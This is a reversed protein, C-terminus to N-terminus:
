PATRLKVAPPASRRAAKLDHVGVPYSASLGSGGASTGGPSRAAAFSPAAALPSALPQPLVFSQPFGGYSFLYGQEDGGGPDPNANYTLLVDGTYPTERKILAEGGGIGAYRIHRGSSSVEDAEVTKEKLSSFIGEGPSFIAETIHHNLFGWVRTSVAGKYGYLEFESGAPANVYNAIMWSSLLADWREEDTEGMGPIRNGAAQAVARYDRYASGIIDTYVGNGGAHIRLWQFFLYATAYNALTDGYEQEWFGDWVFFNNGYAITDPHNNFYDIRGQQVGGYLHEAACSLGENLWLEQPEGNHRAYNLLHQLEHAINTYFGASGPVQPNVDLFLMDAQNSYRGYLYMHTMDFYGAVYAGSGQYGDQIDLLLLIVKGNGDVDFETGAHDGFVGTVAPYIRTDYELAIDKATRSSIPEEESVYVICRAGEALRVANVTYFEIGEGNARQVNFSRSEPPVDGVERRLDPLSCGLLSLVVASWFALSTFRATKELM